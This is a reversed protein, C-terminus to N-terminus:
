KKYIPFFLPRKRLLDVVMWLIALVILVSWTFLRVVGYEIAIRRSFWYSSDLNCWLPKLAKFPTSIIRKPRNRAALSSMLASLIIENLKHWAVNCSLFWGNPLSSAFLLSSTIWSHISIRPWKNNVAELGKLAENKM